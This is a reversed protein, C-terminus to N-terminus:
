LAVPPVILNFKLNSSQEEGSTVIVENKKTLVAVQVLKGAYQSLDSTTMSDVPFYPFQLLKETSLWPQSNFDVKFYVKGNMQILTGNLLYTEDQALEFKTNAARLPFPVREGDVKPIVCVSNSQVVQASYQQVQAYARDLM